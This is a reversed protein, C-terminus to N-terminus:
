QSFCQAIHAEAQASLDRGEFTEILRGPFHEEYWAIKKERHARYDKDSVMGWHEWFWKEGQWVVTFDPLYMTGDTARLPVEYEFPVDREHLLNAIVLESKSRVMEGSLAEHIRGEEYWGKRNVLAGAVARFMGGFLSSNVLSRQVNEPRRASLLTSIDGEVLLTCHRTARTLATYVLESSLPRGQSRPVIIYTHAFESGQAKHVSIAYALELNDQVSESGGKTKLDRGYAVALREKREFTVQFRILRYRGSRDFNHKKVFGVEGNFVEVPEATRTEYNYAWISNSQSRNRYQIVKDGLTIGDLAGFKAILGSAIRGQIAANLAEVGHLEGRHPTLVQYTAPNDEFALRWLEYPKNSDLITGSHNEMDREIKHILLDALGTGEDWYAIHLDKDVDGGAHIRGILKEDDLSTQRGGERANNGIFLDALELIATGRDEVRNEMQRLNKSLYAVKAQDGSWLWEIIDSLVRGRGIPPLQNSDGVLVFRKIQRWDLARVLAAMLGLDLMSAEDIVLTGSGSRSGGQRKFTLNDNLWGNRALFSHVTSTEVREIERGRLTARVRDTAKGTPALVTVVAGEGDTRRIARVIACIVSTKGTGASGTVVALPQRLIAACAEAQSAVAVEYEDHAKELLPSHPNRIERRWDDDTFPRNLAITPRGAILTLADEVAREDAYVDKLYLWLREEEQRLVLAESLEDRDVEFHRLTFKATKWTPLKTLWRNVEELVESAARFTQNRERRLQDVCLSRLRRPDDSDMEALPEGGLEPSPLVARDVTAWPIVDDPDDGVYWECLCYPNELLAQTEGLGHALRSNADENVVSEIQQDDLDIRPIINRLVEKAQPSKLEWQRCTRKFARGILGLEPVEVESDLATFFQEHARKSEGREILIRAQVTARDARLYRMVNLLGPYLGRKEWLDAICGLLWREREEWNESGDGMAKLEHVASLM